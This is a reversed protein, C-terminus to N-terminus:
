MLFHTALSFYVIVGSIDCISTILPVSAAAPDFKLRNLIFPMAFGILCGMLVVLMMSAGVVLAVALSTRLIGIAWIGIAMTVGLLLAVGLEKMLMRWWDEMTVDGTALGRIILTASQSGANGASGILVPLFFVLAVVAAITDEFHAIAAGSVINVVVLTMLWGIRRRYLLNVPAERLSGTIAGVSGLKQFDETAEKRAVDLIDDVTVIGLLTGDVGVVPLVILDYRDFLQVAQERDATPPIQVVNLSMLSDVRKSLDATVLHRLLVRGLLRNTESVVYVAHLSESEEGTARIHELARAVTWGPHITTYDPTMLRGVSEEPYGLLMRAERLDDPSMNALLRRTIEEPMEELLQTRDDPELEDLLRRTEEDTLAALLDDQASAPLYSFVVASPEKALARFLLVRQPKELDTLLDAVEPPPWTALAERLGLWDREEIMDVIDPLLLEKLHYTEHVHEM